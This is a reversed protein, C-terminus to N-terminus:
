PLCVRGQDRCRSTASMEGQLSATALDVQDAIFAGGGNGPNVVIKFGALPSDPHEPNAIAKKIVERLYAAYEQSPADFATSWLASRRIRGQLCCSSM